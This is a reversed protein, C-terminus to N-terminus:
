LAGYDNPNIFKILKMMIFPKDATPSNSNIIKAAIQCCYLGKGTNIFHSQYHGLKMQDLWAQVSIVEEDTDTTVSRCCTTYVLM